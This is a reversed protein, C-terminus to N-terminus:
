GDKRLCIGSEVKYKNEMFAAESNLVKVSLIISDVETPPQEIMYEIKYFGNFLDEEQM